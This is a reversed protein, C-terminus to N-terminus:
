AVVRKAGILQGHLLDNVIKQRSGPTHYVREGKQPIDSYDIIYSKLIEERLRFEYTDTSEVRNIWSLYYSRRGFPRDNGLAIWEQGDFMRVEGNGMFPTPHTSRYIFSIAHYLDFDTLLKPDEASLEELFCATYEHDPVFLSNQPYYSEKM